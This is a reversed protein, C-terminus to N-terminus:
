VESKVTAMGMVVAIDLRASGNGVVYEDVKDGGDPWSIKGLKAEGRIAVSAGPTLTVALSGSEV